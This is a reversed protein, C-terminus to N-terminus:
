KGFRYEYMERHAAKVAEILEPYPTDTASILGINGNEGDQGRGTLAQDYYQYWHAGVYNPDDWVARLYTTYNSARTAQDAVNLLAGPFMGRDTAGFHFEGILIPKDLGKAIRLDPITQYINFSLVDHLEVGASLVEPPLDGVFRCGLYLHNPSMKNLHERLTGYYTRAYLSLMESLDAALGDGLPDAPKFPADLDEWAAFATKWAANLQAIDQNHRTKLLAIFARKAHSAAADRGLADLPIMFRSRGGSAGYWQENGVFYGILWPDERVNQPIANLTDRVDIAFQPDFVDSLGCLTAHRGWVWLTFTYPVKGNANYEWGSFAGLTNCGWAVMRNLTLAMHPGRYDAGFKRELNAQFFDVSEGEWTEWPWKKRMHKKLVDDERPDVDFMHERGTYISGNEFGLGCPGVSLFLRGEPDVLSWKGNHKATRFFGTAELQPGDAWGGFRTRGPLAPNAELEKLEAALSAKMDDASRVKGPWEQRTYQGFADVIKDFNEEKGPLLRMGGLEFVHEQSPRVLFVMYGTINAYNFNPDGGSSFSKAGDFGPLAKMGLSRPNAGFKMVYTGGDGPEIVAEGGIGNRNGDAGPNDIRLAIRISEGGTNRIDVAIGGYGSWDMPAEPKFNVFPYDTVGMKVEWVKAGDREVSAVTAHAAGVEGPEDKMGGKFTHLVREEAQWEVACAAGALLFVSILSCRM